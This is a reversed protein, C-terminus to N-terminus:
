FPCPGDEEADQAAQANAAEVSVAEDPLHRNKYQSGKMRRNQIYEPLAAFAADDWEDADFSVPATTAPPVTTGKPVSMITGINAYQGDKSHVVSLMAPRNLLRATDFQGSNELAHGLWSELFARLHGKKGMTATFTRSLLVPRQEAGTGTTEESLEFLLMLDNKYSTRGEYTHEQEGLGVEGVCVAMYVGPAVPPTKPKEELSLKM